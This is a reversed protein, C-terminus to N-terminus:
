PALATNHHVHPVQPFSGDSPGKQSWEHRPPKCVEHQKGGCASIIHQQQIYTPGHISPLPPRPVLPQMPPPSITADNTCTRRYHPRRDQYVWTTNNPHKISLMYTTSTVEAPIYQQFSGVCCSNEIPRPVHMALESTTTLLLVKFLARCRLYNTQGM